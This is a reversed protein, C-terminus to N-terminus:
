AKWRGGGINGMESPLVELIEQGIVRNLENLAEQLAFRADDLNGSNYASRAEDIRSSVDQAQLSTGSVILFLLIGKFLKKMM